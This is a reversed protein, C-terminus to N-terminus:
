ASELHRPYNRGPRGSEAGAAVPIQYGSEPQPDGAAELLADFGLAAEYQLGPRLLFVRCRLVRGRILRVVGLVTIQLEVSTGPLLRVGTRV